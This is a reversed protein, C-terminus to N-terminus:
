GLKKSPVTQPRDPSLNMIVKILKESEMKGYIRTTKESGHGLVAGIETYNFQGLRQMVFSHRNMKFTGNPYGAKRCAEKWITSIYNSYHKGRKHLFVHPEKFDKRKAKLDFLIERIEDTMPLAKPKGEKTSNVLINDSYNRKLIIEGKAITNGNDDKLVKDFNVCDWQLARLEGSRAGYAIAFQCIPKHTEPVQMLIEYQQDPTFWKIPKKKFHNYSPLNIAKEIIEQDSYVWTLFAQMHSSINLTMRNVPMDNLWQTVHRKRLDRIDMNGFKPIIYKELIVKKQRISSPKPDRYSKLWVETLSKVQVDLTQQKTYQLRDFTHDDIRKRIHELIRYAHRYSYFPTGKDDSYVKTRKGKYHLDIFVKDPRNGCKPCILDTENKVFMIKYKLNCHKCITEKTRITGKM